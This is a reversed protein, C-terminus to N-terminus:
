TIMATSGVNVAFRLRRREAARRGDDDLVALVADGVAIIMAFCYIAAVAFMAPHHAVPGPPTTGPSDRLAFEGCDHAPLHGWVRVRRNRLRM